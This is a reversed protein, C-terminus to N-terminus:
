LPTSRLNVTLRLLLDGEEVTPATKSGVEKEEIQLWRELKDENVHCLISSWKTGLQSYLKTLHEM